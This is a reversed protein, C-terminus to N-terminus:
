RDVISEDSEFAGMTINNSILLTNDEVSRLVVIVVKRFLSM